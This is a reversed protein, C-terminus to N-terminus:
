PTLRTGPASDTTVSDGSHARRWPDTVARVAAAFAVTDIRIPYRSRLVGVLMGPFVRLPRRMAIASDLLATAADGPSVTAGAHGFQAGLSDLVVHYQPVLAARAQATLAGTPAALEILIERRALQNLYAGTASDSAGAVLLRDDPRLLLLASRAAVPSLAGGTWTVLPADDATRVPERALARLRASAKPALTVHRTRVISDAYRSDEAAILRPLLWQALYPRSEDPMARRFIHFGAETRVVSSSVAGPLLSWLRNRPMLSDLEARSVAPLFGNNARSASDQSKDRVLASFDAGPAQARRMLGVIQGVIAATGASDSQAPVALVLEQFVRVQNIDALSDVQAATPTPRAARRADWYALVEGRAADTAIVADATASDDLAPGRQLATALLAEDIWTAVIRNAVVRSPFESSKLLWRQLTVRTLEASGAQAV